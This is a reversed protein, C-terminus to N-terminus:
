THHSADSNEAKAATWVTHRGVQITEEDGELRVRHIFDGNKQRPCILVGRMEITLKGESLSHRFEGVCSNGMVHGSIVLYKQRGVVEEKVKLNVILDTKDQFFHMYLAQALAAVVLIVSVGKVFTGIRSMKSM